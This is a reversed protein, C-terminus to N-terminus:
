GQGEEIVSTPLYGSKQGRGTQFGSLYHLGREGSVSAIRHEEALRLPRADAARLCELFM